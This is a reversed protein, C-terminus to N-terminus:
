YQDIIKRDLSFNLRSPNESTLISILFLPYWLQIEWIVSFLVLLILNWFILYIHIKKNIFFLFGFLCLPIHILSQKIIIESINSKLLVFIPLFLEDYYYPVDGIIAFRILIYVFLSIFFYLLIQKKNKYDTILFYGFLLWSVQERILIIPILWIFSKKKISLALFLYSISSHLLNYPYFVILSSFVMFKLMMMQNQNLKERYLYFISIFVIVYFFILSYFYSIGM